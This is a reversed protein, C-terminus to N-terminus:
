RRERRCSSRTDLIVLRIKLDEIAALIAKSEARDSKKWEVDGAREADLREWLHAYSQYVTVCGGILSGILVVAALWQFLASDQPRM